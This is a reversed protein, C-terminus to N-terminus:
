GLRVYRLHLSCHKMREIFIHIYHINFYLCFENLIMAEYNSKADEYREKVQGGSNQTDRQRLKAEKVNDKAANLTQVFEELMSAEMFLRYKSGQNTDNLFEKANQQKLIVCPNNVHIKLEETITKLAKMGKLQMHMEDDFIKIISTGSNKNLVREICFQYGLDAIGENGGNHIFLRIRSSRNIIYSYM